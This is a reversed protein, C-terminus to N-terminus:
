NDLNDDIYSIAYINVHRDRIYERFEADESIDVANSDVSSVVIDDNTGGSSDNKSNSIVNILILAGVFMGAMYLLPKVREFLSIKKAEPVSKDPLSNMINETLSDFYGEPVRFPQKNILENLKNNGTEM